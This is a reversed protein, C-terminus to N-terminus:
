SGVKFADTFFGLLLGIKFFNLCRIWTYNKEYNIVPETCFKFQNFFRKNKELWDHKKKYNLYNISEISLIILMIIFGDWVFYNRFFILFTGFLNGCFFGFFLFFISFAFTTDFLWVKIQGKTCLNNILKVFKTNSAM